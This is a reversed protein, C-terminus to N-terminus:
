DHTRRTFCKILGDEESEGGGEGRNTANRDMAATIKQASSTTKEKALLFGKMNAGLETGFNRVTNLLKSTPNVTYFNTWFKKKKAKQTESKSQSPHEKRLIKKALKPIFTISVECVFQIMEEKRPPKPYSLSRKEGMLHQISTFISNTTLHKM